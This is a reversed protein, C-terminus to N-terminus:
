RREVMHHLVMAKAEEASAEAFHWDPKGGQLDSSAEPMDVAHGAYVVHYLSTTQGDDGEGTVSALLPSGELQDLLWNELVHTTPRVEGAVHSVLVHLTVTAQNAEM